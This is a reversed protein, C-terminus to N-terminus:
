NQTPLYQKFKEFFKTKFDESFNNEFITKAIMEWNLYDKFEFQEIYYIWADELGVSQGSPLQVSLIEGNEESDYLLWELSFVTYYDWDLYDKYKDIFNGDLTNNELKFRTIYDWDLHDKCIDIFNDDLTNTRLKKSVIDKWDNETFYGKYKDIFNEDLTNTSLKTYVIERWVNNSFYGKYKDIFNEDLTDFSLKYSVIHKWPLTPLVSTIYESYNHEFNEDLTGFRLKYSVIDKWPLTPLVSAIYESYNNKFNEDLTGNHLKASVIYKWVNETFYGKYKDIFNDDLTDNNLKYSVIDKWVNETFYGKYKDIFEDSLNDSKLLMGLLEKIDKEKTIINESLLKEVLLWDETEEAHEVLEDLDDKYTTILGNIAIKRYRRFTSKLDSNLQNYQYLPITEGTQVYPKLLEEAYAANVISDFQENTLENNYSIYKLKEEKSLKNFWDYSKNERGYKKLDEKENPEWPRKKFISTDVGKSALYTLYEEIDKYGKIDNRRGRNRLDNFENGRNDFDLQVRRTVDDEEKFGDFIIFPTSEYNLREYFFTTNGPQCNCWNTGAGWKICDQVTRCEHVVIKKESFNLIQDQDQDREQRKIKKEEEKFYSNWAHLDTLFSELDKEYYVIDKKKNNIDKLLIREGPPNYRYSILLPDRKILYRLIDKNYEVDVGHRELMEGIKQVPDIEAKEKVQVNELDDITAQPNTFLTAIMRGRLENDSVNKVFEIVEEPVQKEKLKTEFNQAFILKAFRYWV